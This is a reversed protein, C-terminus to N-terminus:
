SLILQERKLLVTSFAHNCFFQLTVVAVAAAVVICGYNIFV